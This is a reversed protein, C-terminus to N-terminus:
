ESSISHQYTTLWNSPYNGQQLVEIIKRACAEMSENCTDVEVDYIEHKHVFDLQQKAQGIHRDGRLRERRELEEIPCHVGVFLVPYASLVKLCDQRTFENFLVHDVIINVELDSFMAIARHFFVDTEVPILRNNPRDEMLEILIDFNDGGFHFYDPLLKVLEKGLTSKGSSSVGNLLIITGKEM